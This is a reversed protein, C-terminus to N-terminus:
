WGEVEYDENYGVVVGSNSITSAILDLPESEPKRISGTERTWLFTGAITFDANFYWGTVVGRENMGSLGVQGYGGEPADLPPAIWDFRGTRDRLFLGSGDSDDYAGIADCFNNADILFFCRRAREDDIGPVGGSEIVKYLQGGAVTGLFPLVKIKLTASSKGHPGSVWYRIADDCPANGDPSYRIHGHGAEEVVGCRGQTFGSLRLRAQSGVDNALVDVVVPV